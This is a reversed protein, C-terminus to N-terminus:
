DRNKPMEDFPIRCAPEKEFEKLGNKIRNGLDPEIETYIKVARERIFKVTNGLSNVINSILRSREGKSLKSYMEAIQWLNDSEGEEIEIIKSRDYDDYPMPGNFSNDYYNPTDEGNDNVPAAGDKYYYHRTVSALPCNVKINHFNIGLRYFQADKYAWLRSEFLKDPAGDIGPVLNCPCYALQEIEAFYNVPNRNLVLKGVPTLPYDEYPLELTPDFVDINANLAQEPTLLQIGFDWAVRKGCAIAEYMDRTFSDPDNGDLENAEEATLSDEGDEPIFHFRVFYIDGNKNQVQYTHISHGPMKRYGRPIGGDTYVTTFMNLSEPNRTLFDWHMNEDVINTTPNRSEVHLFTFFLTPDKFAFMPTSLGVIDFNGENTYFKVAFGKMSRSTDSLGREGIAPSFRAAVPTKKGIESLFDAKIYETVNHTVEFYGFAGVGKGHVIREPIRERNAHAISETFFNNYLLKQNLTRTKRREVPEGNATTLTTKVGQTKKLFWAIQDRVPDLEEAWVQIAITLLVVVRITVAM